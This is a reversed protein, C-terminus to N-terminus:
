CGHESVRLGSLLHLPCQWYYCRASHEAAQESCTYNHYKGRAACCPLCIVTGWEWCFVPQPSLKGLAGLAVWTMLSPNGLGAETPPELFPAM